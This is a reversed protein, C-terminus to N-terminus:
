LMKAAKRIARQLQDRASTISSPESIGTPRPTVCAESLSKASLPLTAREAAADCAGVTIYTWYTGDTSVGQTIVTDTWKTSDDFILGTHKLADRLEKAASPLNEFTDRILNRKSPVLRVIQIRRRETCRPAKAGYLGSDPGLLEQARRVGLSIVAANQLATRWVKMSKHKVSYHPNRNDSNYNKLNRQISFEVRGSESIACLEIPRLAARELPTLEQSRRTM